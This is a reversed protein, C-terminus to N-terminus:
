VVRTLVSNKKRLIHCVFKKLKLASQLFYIKQTLFIAVLVPLNYSFFLFLKKHTVQKTLKLIANVSDAHFQLVM